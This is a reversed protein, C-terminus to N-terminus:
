KDEVLLTVKARYGATRRDNEAAAEAIRRASERRLKANAERNAPLAEGRDYWVAAATGGAIAIGVLTARSDSSTGAIPADARLAQNLAFTLAGVIVGTAIGSARSVKHLEPLLKSQDLPPPTPLLELATATVSAQMSRELIVGTGTDRARVVFEYSGTPLVPIGGKLARMRLAADKTNLASDLTIQTGADPSSAILWVDSPQSTVVRLIADGISGGYIFETRPLRLAMGIATVKEDNLLAVLGAWRLEVPLAADLDLRIAERLAKRAETTDRSAGEEPFSAAAVTQWALVAQSRRLATGLALVERAITDARAFKLDNIADRARTLLDNIPSAGSQASLASGSGHIPAGAVLLSTVVFRLRLTKM